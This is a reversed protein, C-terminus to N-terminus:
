HDTVYYIVLKIDFEYQVRTNRALTHYSHFPKIETFGFNPVFPLWGYRNRDYM